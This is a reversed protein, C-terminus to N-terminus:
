GKEEPPPKVRWKRPHAYTLLQFGFKELIPRSMPSTDVSLFRVGRGLAEQTRTALLATYLGRKRYDPLTSGGWLYAFQSQRFFEIWASSVPLGDVYALYVSLNEPDHQLREELQRGLWTLDEQWVQKQVAIVDNIDDLDTVRRVDATIPQLLVPPAEQLDLALVAEPDEVKFGHAVLLDKLDAPTDYDYVKWEFDQGLGDFYAIQERITDEVNATSMRSYIIVGERGVGSRAVHRIINPTVERRHDFLEIEQRQEKDYLGLIQDTNM